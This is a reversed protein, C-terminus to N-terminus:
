LYGPWLWSVIGKPGHSSPSYVRSIKGLELQTKSEAIFGVSEAFAEAAYPFCGHGSVISGPCALAEGKNFCTFGFCQMAVDAWQPVLKGPMAHILDHVCNSADGAGKHTVCRSFFNFRSFNTGPWRTIPTSWHMDVRAFLVLDYAGAGSAGKKAAAETFTDFTFQLSALQSGSDFSAYSLVRGGGGGCGGGGEGGELTDILEAVLGCDATSSAVVIDVAVGRAELPVVVHRVLSRAADLQPARCRADCGPPNERTRPDPRTDMPLAKRPCRFPLGRLVIAVKSGTKPLGHVTTRKFLAHFSDFAAVPPQLSHFLWFAPLISAVIVLLHSRTSFLWRNAM